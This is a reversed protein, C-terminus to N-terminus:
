KKEIEKKRQLPFNIIEEPKRKHFDKNQKQNDLHRKSSFDWPAPVLSNNKRKSTGWM